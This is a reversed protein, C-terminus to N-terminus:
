AIFVEDSFFPSLFHSIFSLFKAFKFNTVRMESFVSFLSPFLLWICFKHLRLLLHKRKPCNNVEDRFVSTSITLRMQLGFSESIRVNSVYTKPVMQGSGPLVAAFPLDVANCRPAACSIREFFVM